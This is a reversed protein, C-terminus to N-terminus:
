SVEGRINAVSILLDLAKERCIQEGIAEIAGRSTLRERLVAPKEGIGEADRRIREEIEEPAIVVNEIKAAADLILRAHVTKRAPEVQEDRLAKWDLEVKQPDVGRAVLTRVVQELRRRVEGDVLVEPLVVPNRLLVEDLVAQRLRRDAEHGARTELDSRVRARLAALDAFEGLDKAFEDDLAPVERLRVERVRIEYQVSRGALEPAAEGVVHDITFDLASGSTAGTLRETFAPPLGAAGVELMMRQREFPEGESPTGRLDCVVIDGPAAAREEVPVLKAHAQRLEELTRDIEDEGVAVHPREVEVGRHGRLEIVPLVEFSVRFRLGDSDGAGVDDLVPDGLPEVGRERTADRFCRTVVRERVETEVDKGLRARVLALPARGPRFGPLKAKQQYGRLVVDTERALEEPGVEIAMIRRVPGASTMEVKM